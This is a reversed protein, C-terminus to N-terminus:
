PKHAQLSKLIGEWKQKIIQFDFEQAKKAANGGMNQALLPQEFVRRV